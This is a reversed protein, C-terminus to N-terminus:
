WFKAINKKLQIDTLPNGIYRLTSNLNVHHGQAQAKRIDGTKNYIYRISENKHTHSTLRRYKHGNSAVKYVTCDQLGAKIRAVRIISEMSTLQMNKGPIRSSFFICGNNDKIEKEYFALYAILPKILPDPIIILENIITKNKQTPIILTLESLNLNQLNLKLVESIRLGTYYMIQLVLRHKKSLNDWLKQREETSM